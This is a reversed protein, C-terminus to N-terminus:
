NDYENYTDKTTTHSMITQTHTNELQKDRKANWKM